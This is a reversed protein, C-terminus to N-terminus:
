ASANIIIKITITIITIIMIKIKIRTIIIMLCICADPTQQFISDSASVKWGSISAGMQRFNCSESIVFSQQGQSSRRAPMEWQRKPDLNVCTWASATIDTSFVFARKRTGYM